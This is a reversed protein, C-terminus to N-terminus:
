CYPILSNEQTSMVFSSLIRRELDDIEERMEKHLFQTPISNLKLREPPVVSIFWRGPGWAEHHM